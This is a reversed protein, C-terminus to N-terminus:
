HVNLLVVTHMCPDQLYFLLVMAIALLLLMNNVGNKEETDDEYCTFYLRYCWYPKLAMRM